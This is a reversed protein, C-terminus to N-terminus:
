CPTDKKSSNITDETEKQSALAAFAISEDVFLSLWEATRSPTKFSQLLERFEEDNKTHTHALIALGVNNIEHALMIFLRQKDTLDVKSLDDLEHIDIWEM